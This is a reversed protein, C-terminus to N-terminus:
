DGVHRAAAQEVGIACQAGGAQARRRQDLDEVLDQELHGLGLDGVGGPEGAVRHAGRERELDREAGADLDTRVPGIELRERRLITAILFSATSTSSTTAQLLPPLLVSLGGTSLGGM